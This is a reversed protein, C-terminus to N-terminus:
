EYLGGLIGDKRAGTVSCLEVPERHIRKYALWAFAMAEMFDSSVGYDDTLAVKCNPLLAAIREFLFQNKAGGGCLLLLERDYKKVEDAITQATLELLTRQIDEDSYGGALKLNEQLWKLNFKERGTSKPPSQSFYPDSLMVDLLELIVKGLAAWAGDRDFKEGRVEEIWSDMLVNGPGTDYGILPEDLVTINAMGGINVVATRKEIGGFLFQHFAPAFPAGQGGLAMDMRRFDAVVPINTKAVIVNPDGLQMSFPYDGSPQHWLTQGHSGIAAIESSERGSKELLKNVADAFLIGLRHDIEGQLSLAHRTEVRDGGIIQLIDDRLQRDFPLELSDVLGCQKADIVCLVADVGDLSTGSMLGIYYNKSM